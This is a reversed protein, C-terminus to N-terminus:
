QERDSNSRRSRTSEIRTQVMREWLPNAKRWPLEFLRVLSLAEHVEHEAKFQSRNSDRRSGQTSPALSPKAGKKYFGNGCHRWNHEPHAEKYEKTYTRESDDGSESEDEAVEGEDDEDDGFGDLPGSRRHLRAARLEGPTLPNAESQRRRLSYSADSLRKSTIAPQSDFSADNEDNEDEDADVENDGSRRRLSTRGSFRPTHNPKTIPTSSPQAPYSVTNSPLYRGQGRHVWKVEPHKLTYAKSYTGKHNPGDDDDNYPTSADTLSGITIRRSAANNQHRDNQDSYGDTAWNSHSQRDREEIQRLLPRVGKIILLPGRIVATVPRM